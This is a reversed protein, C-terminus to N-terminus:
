KNEEKDIIRFAEEPTQRTNEPTMESVAGFNFVLSNDKHGDDEIKFKSEPKGITYSLYSNIASLRTAPPVKPDEAMKKLEGFVSRIDKITECLMIKKRVQEPSTLRQRPKSKNRTQIANKEGHSLSEWEELTMGNAKASQKRRFVASRAQSLEEKKPARIAPLIPTRKKAEENTDEAISPEVQQIKQIEIVPPMWISEAKVEEDTFDKIENVENEEQNM